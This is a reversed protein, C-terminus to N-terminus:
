LVMITCTYLSNYKNKFHITKLKRDVNKISQNISKNILQRKVGANFYKRSSQLILQKIHYLYKQLFFLSIM